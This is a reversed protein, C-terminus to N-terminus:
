MTSSPSPMPKQIGVNWSATCFASGWRRSPVPVAETLKKRWIPPVKETATSPESSALPKAALRSSTAAGGWSTSFGCIRSLGSSTVRSVAAMSALRGPADPGMMSAARRASASETVSMKRIPTPMTASPSAIPSNMGRTCM